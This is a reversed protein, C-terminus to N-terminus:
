RAPPQCRVQAAEWGGAAYRLAGLINSPALGSMEIYGLGIGIQKVEARPPLGQEKRYQEYDAIELAREFAPLYDASDVQLGM